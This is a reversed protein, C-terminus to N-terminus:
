VEAEYQERLISREFHLMYNLAYTHMDEKGVTQDLNKTNNETFILDFAQKDINKIDPHIKRILLQCNEFSQKEYVNAGWKKDIIDHCNNEQAETLRVNDYNPMKPAKPDGAFPDEGKLEELAKLSKSRHPSKSLGKIFKDQERKKM